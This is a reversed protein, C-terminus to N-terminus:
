SVLDSVDVGFASCRDFLVQMAADKARLAAELKRRGSQELSLEGRMAERDAEIAEAIKEAVVFQQGVMKGKRYVNTTWSFQNVIETAIQDASKM